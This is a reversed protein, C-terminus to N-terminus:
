TLVCYKEFISRKHLIRYSSWPWITWCSYFKPIKKNKEHYWNLFYQSSTDIRRSRFGWIPLAMEVTYNKVSCHDGSLISLKICGMPWPSSTSENIIWDFCYLGTGPAWESRQLQNQFNNWNRNGVSTDINRSTSTQKPCWFSTFLMPDLRLKIHIVTRDILHLKPIMFPRVM